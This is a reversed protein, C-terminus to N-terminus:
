ATKEVWWRMLHHAVATRPPAGFVKGQEGSKAAELADVVDARTFWRADELETTDVTIATDDAHAHCGIMLSSPFPWPQSMVYTVDRVQVGAEEFVERAVAEEITEGPEVFGALASYNGAPFRPQRGLLLNGGHEVLMITVPDVRPFHEAKCIENTCNRQWGGKAIRTPASCRACFRHRAHWDVLSRAGGYTALDGADLTAMAQWLQPNAPSTSGGIEPTIAAFCGRGGDLGLFVFEAGEPADALTGWSLAGEPSIVPDLGNMLLLRARWDMLAALTEPSSRVNDARDLRSGAFAIAEITM